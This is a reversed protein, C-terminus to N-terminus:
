DGTIGVIPANLPLGALSGAFAAGGFAFIGGDSSALWYGSSGPSTAMGVIPKNLTLAGTSGFFRAGGFAFIGGDSAVLWYGGPFGSSAMGVVPKNLHLSGTSGFFTADGFAFIGGDSAVLWYGRGDPTATMGVVPMNLHLAGTSGYFGADGFAFIGGDSAVLWYGGADPTSAMGVIPQNLPLAGTSGFFRADGLNFVGGDSAVLWYGGQDATAMGVMPKNLPRGGMSGLTQLGGFSFVGGDAAVMRYGSGFPVTGPPGVTQVFAVSTSPEFVVNGSYSATVSHQTAVAHASVPRVAGTPGGFSTTCTATYPPSGGIPLNICGPIPAGNDFITVTGTHAGSGTTPFTVTATCTVTQGPTSPNPACTITITTPAPVGGPGLVVQSLVVSTSRAFVPDGLYAATIPHPDGDLTNYTVSCTATDPAEESLPQTTCGPIPTEGDFFEVSGGPVGEIIDSNPADEIPAVVTATYTVTDEVVSPNESSAVTTTTPNTGIPTYTIVV